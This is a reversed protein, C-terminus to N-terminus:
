LMNTNVKMAKYTSNPELEWVVGVVDVIGELGDVLSRDAVLGEVRQLFEDVDDLVSM